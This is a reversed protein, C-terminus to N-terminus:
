EITKISDPDVINYGQERLGTVIDELAAATWERDHMLLNAGNRLYETELMVETIAEKSQYEEEWDYGYTWNMSVMGEDKIFQKTFDTNAGNPPRFFRPREGIIKKVKDNLSIIEEKQEKDPLDPLYSHSNTHNGIEFGMGHIQKLIEQEEPSNLFHGNVFFIAKAELSELTNAMELAYEDPADDITPLVAKETAKDDIPLVSSTETDIQYLPATSQNQESQVQRRVASAENEEQPQETEDHDATQEQKMEQASEEEAGTKDEACASVFLAMAMILWVIHKM